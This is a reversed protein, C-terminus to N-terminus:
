PSVTWLYYPIGYKDPTGKKICRTVKKVQSESLLSTSRSPGRKKARIAGLGGERYKKWIKKVAPLSIQFIEAAQQQTGKGSKIFAIIRIRIAAQAEPHLKRGDEKKM